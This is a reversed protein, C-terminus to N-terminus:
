PKVGPPPTMGRAELKDAMQKAKERLWPTPDNKERKRLLALTEPDDPWGRAIAQLAVDRVGSRWSEWEAEPTADNVARDKLITLTDKDDKWGRALEQVAAQRVNQFDDKTARDKLITLTDPDDKWGRALEQVAAQRVAWNDDKTARDKLWASPNDPLLATALAGVAKTQVQNRRQAEEEYERYFYPFDFRLLNELASRALDFAPGLTRPNRLEQCCKAALFRHHFKYTKDQQKLLFEIIRAVHEVSSEAVQGAILCLVEHWKEDQWHPAFIEDLLYDLDLKQMFRQHIATACFYELFTRHVFSYSGGGRYCLIFNRLRLQEILDRVAARPQTFGLEEKLYRSLMTELEDENILNGALGEPASQMTYAIERLMEAKEKPGVHGKLQPHSDLARETDWQHLLLRSAQEYLQIRERPLEQNRNLIAMMTLLLPNGALERIAPSDSIARALRAKKSAADNKNKFTTDHWRNLFDNVQTDDLDQLIFHSFEADALRQPKYGIVRSTVIVRVERYHNSFFHIDNIVQERRALDFVEDLGDLLLITRRKGDKLRKDLEIQDLRHWTQSEHLYRVFGKDKPCDWRDYEKLEILLPLPMADREAVNENRAWELALHQLFSSKGAGPDGLVVMRMLRDDSALELVSRPSQDLYARQREQILEKTMERVDKADLEGSAVMRRLHEKPIEHLQPLYERSERVTQPVFVKWLKVGDYNAGSTDMTDFHLNAYRELLAERYNRLQFDPQVGLAQKTNAATERDAQAQLVARFDADDERLKKLKRNFSKAVFDWDFEQPLPTEDPWGRKLEQGEVIGASSAFANPLAERLTETRVFQKLDKAYVDINGAPIGANQLEEDIVEVLEKIAKGYLKLYEDHPILKAARKMAKGFFSKGQDKAIDKALDELVPKALAGVAKGAGWLVLWEVAM